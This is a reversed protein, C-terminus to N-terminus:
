FILCSFLLKKQYLFRTTLAQKIHNSFIVAPGPSDYETNGFRTGKTQKPRKKCMERMQRLCESKEQKTLDNRMRLLRKGVGTNIAPYKQTLKKFM